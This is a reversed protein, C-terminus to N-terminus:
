SSPGNTGGRPPATRGRPQPGPPRSRPQLGPKHIVVRVDNQRDVAFFCLDRERRVLREEFNQTLIEAEASRLVAALEALAACAGHEEVSLGHQRAEHK